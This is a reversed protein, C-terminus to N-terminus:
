GGYKYYIACTGESSVMCPGIPNEPRCAVKFMPCELPTMIGKMIDGCRCVEDSIKTSLKPQLPWRRAADFFGWTKKIALGSEKVLGFGRWVIDCPEFVEKITEQAVRNGEPSVARNYQIVISPKHLNQKIIEISEMIDGPAFGSIVGTIGFDRALFEFPKSGTITSVHGPLILGHLNVGSQFLTRLIKPMTRHLSLVSFNKIGEDKAKMITLAVLPATTEFGVGVFVIQRSPNKRAIALAELPSYIIKINERCALEMPIGRMTWLIRILDGFTVVTFGCRAYEIVLQIDEPAIVCVPCGPGSVLKVRGSYFQRLAYKSVVESHTGCVEMIKLESNGENLVENAEM